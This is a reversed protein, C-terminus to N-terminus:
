QYIRITSFEKIISDSPIDVITDKENLIKKNKEVQKKHVFIRKENTVIISDYHNILITDKQV